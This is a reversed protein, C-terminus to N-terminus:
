VHGLVRSVYKTIRIVHITLYEYLSSIYKSDHFIRFLLHLMYYIYINYLALQFSLYYFNIPSVPFAFSFKTVNGLLLVTPTRWCQM